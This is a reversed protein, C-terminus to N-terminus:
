QFLGQHQSLNLAPPSPSSLPYSPQIADGILPCPNPQVRPTPSSCPPRTHQLEHPRLSNSVVSRSFKVESYYLGKKVQLLFSTICSGM